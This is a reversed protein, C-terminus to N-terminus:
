KNDEKKITDVYGIYELLGEDKVPKEETLWTYHCKPCVRWRQNYMGKITKEVRTKDNGCRPCLM